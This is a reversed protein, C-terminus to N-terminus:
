IPQIIGANTLKFKDGLKKAAHLILVEIYEKPSLHQIINSEPYTKNALYLEELFGKKEM